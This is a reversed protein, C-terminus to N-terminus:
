SRSAFAMPSSSRCAGSSRRAELHEHPLDLAQLTRLSRDAGDGQELSVSLVGTPVYHHAEPRGLDAWMARWAAFADPMRAAYGLRDAYAFRILRHHDASSALPNPIPGQEVVTVGIGAKVLAYATSLGVIGGGVVVVSAPVGTM